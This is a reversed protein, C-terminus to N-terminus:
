SVTEHSYNLGVLLGKLFHSYTYPTGRSGKVIEFCSGTESPNVVRRGAQYGLGHQVDTPFGAPFSTDLFSQMLLLREEPTKLNFLIPHRCAVLSLALENGASVNSAVWKILDLRDELKLEERKGNRVFYLNKAVRDLSLDHPNSRAYQLLQSLSFGPYTGCIKRIVQSSKLKQPMESFWYVRQPQLKGSFSMQQHPPYLVALVVRVFTNIM